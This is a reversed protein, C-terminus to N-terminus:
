KGCKMILPPGDPFNECVSLFLSGPCTEKVNCYFCFELQQETPEVEFHIETFDNDGPLVIKLKKPEKM